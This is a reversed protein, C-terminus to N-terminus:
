FPIQRHKQVKRPPSFLLRHRSKSVAVNELFLRLIRVLMGFVTLEERRIGSSAVRSPFLKLLPIVKPSLDGEQM